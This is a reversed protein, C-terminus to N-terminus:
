GVPDPDVRTDVAESFQRAGHDLVWDHGFRAVPRALLAMAQLLGNRPALDSLLRAQSGGAVESIELRATGVIDGDIAAVALSPGAVEELTLTFRVAYPLPPHVSCHWVSGVEFRAGDLHHLWPWWQRYRDVQTFSEWLDGPALGFEYSRDSAIRM